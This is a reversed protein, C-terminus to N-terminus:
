KILVMKRQESFSGADLRYLYIGTAVQRDADDRGDWIVSYTGAVLGGSVLTRVKQGLMNYITLSVDSVRPLSFTITTSPNFPNPYNQQLAFDDPLTPQDGDDVDTPMYVVTSAYINLGDQRPDAWAFWARGLFASTSPLMMFEPDAPSISENSGVQSLSNDFIQYYVKRSGERNDTWVASCFGSEDIALDLADPDASPDDSVVVPGAVSSGDRDLENLYLKRSGGDYGDWLVIVNGASSVVASLAEIEVGAVSPSWSFSGGESHDPLYWRGKMTAPSVGRDVWVLYTNGAGDRGAQLASNNLDTAPDSLRTDTGSPSGYAALWKRYVQPTGDRHDIWAVLGSGNSALAAVPNSKVASASSDSVVFENYHFGGWQTVFRGFIRQGSLGNLQRNDVWLILFASDSVKTVMPQSQRDLGADQNVRQSGSLLIGANSVSRVYIDGVDRRRDEYVVLNYWDTAALIKPATSTAGVQDDNVIKEQAFIVDGSADFLDLAIDPDGGQIESWVIGSEGPRAFARSPAWRTGITISNMQQIAGVLQLSQDVSATLISNEAGFAAWCVLVAGGASSSLDVDWNAALSDPGSIDVNGGVLGATPSFRQGYIEQGKRQDLWAIVYDHTTSYVVAPAYQEAADSPSPVLSFDAGTGGGNGDFLRAYIDANGNRYDEWAILYGAGPRVAVSPVWHLTSGADSSAVTAPIVPDGVTSYIRMAIFSGSSTYNEWAAVMRGNPYIDFDFPGAFSDLTTDNVLFEDIEITLDSSYRKALILGATQDRYVLFVRGLTDAAVKPEVFDDGHISGALLFNSGVAAGVNDFRQGFIKKSGDRGDTWVVLWSGDKLATVRADDQFFRAPAVSESILIDGDASALNPTTAARPDRISRSNLDLGSLREQHRDVRSLESTSAPAPVSALLGVLLLFAYKKM